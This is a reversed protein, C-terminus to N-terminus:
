FFEMPPMEVTIEKEHRVERGHELIYFYKQNGTGSRASVTFGHVSQSFHGEIVSMFKSKKFPRNGEADCWGLYDDYADAVLIRGKLTERYGGYTVHFFNAPSSHELRYEKIDEKVIDSETFGGQAYLRLRGSLAYNFIGPLERELEQTLTRNIKDATVVNHFGILILRRFLGNSLDETRPLMNCAMIFRAYPKFSVAVKYLARGRVMQGTVMKKLKESKLVLKESVEDSFNAMKGKLEMIAEDKELDAASLVSYNEQGMMSMMTDLLVSKGTGGDGHLVLFKQFRVDPTLLYGMFEQLIMRSDNDPVAEQLYTDFKPCQANEDYEYDLQNFSLYKPHHKFTELTDANLMTNKLNIFNKHPNMEQDPMWKDLAMRKLVETQRADSLFSEAKKQANIRIENKNIHDWVGRSRNYAYFDGRGSNEGDNDIYIIEGAYCNSEVQNALNPISVKRM